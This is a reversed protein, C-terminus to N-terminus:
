SARTLKFLFQLDSIAPSALNKKSTVIYNLVFSFDVLALSGCSAYRPTQKGDRVALPEQPGRFSSAETRVRVLLCVQPLGSDWAELELESLHWLGTAFGRGVM